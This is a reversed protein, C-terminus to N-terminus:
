RDNGKDYESIEAKGGSNDMIIIWNQLSSLNVVSLRPSSVGDVRIMLQANMM